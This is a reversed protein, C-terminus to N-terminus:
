IMEDIVDLNRFTPPADCLEALRQAFETTTAMESNRMAEEYSGFEAIVLYRNATDRDRTVVSRTATRTGDSEARWKDSLSRVEDIRSTTLEIIQIYAM